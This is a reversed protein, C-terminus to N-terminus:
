TPFISHTNCHLCQFLGFSSKWQKQNALDAAVLVYVHIGKQPQFTPLFVNM